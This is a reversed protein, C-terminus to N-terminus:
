TQTSISSTAFSIGSAMMFPKRFDCRFRKISEYYTEVASADSIFIKVNQIPIGKEDMTYIIINYKAAANVAPVSLAMGIFILSLIRKLLERFHIKIPGDSFWRKAAICAFSFDGRFQLAANLVYGNTARNLSVFKKKPFLFLM